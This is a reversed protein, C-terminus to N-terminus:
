GSFHEGQESLLLVERSIQKLDSPSLEDKKLPQLGCLYAKGEVKQIHLRCVPIKFFEYVKKSIERIEEDDQETTGLFSKVSVMEGKLPQTCVAFKYNMSLSKVARYLASKNRATKYGDYIFPNVAFVAVPFGQESAIKKVSDTVLFPLTPIGARSARLLLLPTRNADIINESSPIVPNGMVEAHLSVYYGTKLYRYDNNINLVSGKISSELFRSPKIINLGSKLDINSVVLV